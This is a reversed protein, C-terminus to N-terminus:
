RNFLKLGLILRAHGVGYAEYWQHKVKVLELQTCQEASAAVVLLAVAVVLLKMVDRKGALYHCVHSKM